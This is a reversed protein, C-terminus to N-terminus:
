MWKLFSKQFKLGVEEGRGCASKMEWRQTGVRGGGDGEADSDNKKGAWGGGESIIM